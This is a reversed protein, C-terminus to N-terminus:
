ASPVAAGLTLAQQSLEQDHKRLFHKADRRWRKIYVASGLVVADYSAVSSVEGAEVCDVSLGSQRLTESIAEAVGGDLRAKFRPCGSREDRDM